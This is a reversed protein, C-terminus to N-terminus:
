WATPCAYAYKDSSFVIVAAPKKRAKVASFTPFAARQSSIGLM